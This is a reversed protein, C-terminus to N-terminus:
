IVGGFYCGKRSRGFDFFGEFLKIVRGRCRGLRFWGSLRGVRFLFFEFLRLVVVFVERFGGSRM